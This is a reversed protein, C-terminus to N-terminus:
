SDCPVAEEPYEPFILYTEWGVNKATVFVDVGCAELAPRPRLYHYCVKGELVPCRPVDKGLFFDGVYNSSFIGCLVYPIRRGWRTRTRDSLWGV